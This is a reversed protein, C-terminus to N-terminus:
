FNTLVSMFRLADARLPPLLVAQQFLQDASPRVSEVTGILLGAPLGDDLGATSVAAGPALKENPRALDLLLGTGHDGRVLVEGSVGEARAAVLSESHSLLRVEATFPTVAAVRGVLVTGSSVVPMGVQVGQQSGRNLRATTALGGKDRAIVEATVYRRESEHTLKVEKRLEENEARLSMLLVRDTRLALVERQLEENDAKLTRLSQWFGTLSHLEFATWSFLNQFPLTLTVLLSQLPRATQLPFWWLVLVVLGVVVLLKLRQKPKPQSQYM